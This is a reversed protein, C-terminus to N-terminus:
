TRGQLLFNKFLWVARILGDTREGDRKALDGGDDDSTPASLSAM